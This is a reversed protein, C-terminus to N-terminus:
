VMNKNIKVMGNKDVGGKEHVQVGWPIKWCSNEMEFDAKAYCALVTNCYTKEHHNKVTATEKGSWMQPRIPHLDFYLPVEDTNRIYSIELTSIRRRANLIFIYFEVVKHEWKEPLRWVTTRAFLQLGHHRIFRHCWRLCRSFDLANRKHTEM